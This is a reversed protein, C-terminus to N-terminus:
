DNSQIKRCEFYYRKEQAEGMSFTKRPLPGDKIISKFLSPKDIAPLFFGINGSQHCLEVLTQEGHIFDLEIEPFRNILDDLYSQLSGVALTSPPKLIEMVWFEDKFIFGLIQSDEGQTKIIKFLSNLSHTKTLKVKESFFQSIDQCLDSYFNMLLRHIPGFEIGSNHINMLEVLAYRAPHDSGVKDKITEWIVKATALSHNGDGVAYLLPSGESQYKQKQVDTGALNKISNIIRKEIDKNDVLYGKLHGGGLMLDFDYLIPFDNTYSSLPEIVSFLPDDILIMIHPIQLAANERIKIRPPLRNVITGETARILSQSDKDFNYQELDLAAILGQRKKLGLTREVFILGEFLQFIGTQLYTSMTSNIRSTHIWEEPKGLYAEPLVMHYTSPLNGVIKKVKMWYEPQSTYQDCAIVAWSEKAVSKNPILIDPVQFGIEPYVRM